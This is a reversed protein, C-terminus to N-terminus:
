GTPAWNVGPNAAQLLEAGLSPDDKRGEIRPDNEHELEWVCHRGYIPLPDRTEPLSMFFCWTVSGVMMIGEDEKLTWKLLTVPIRENTPPWLIERHDHIELTDPLEALENPHSLWRAAVGLAMERPDRVAEPIADPRELERLYDSADARTRWDECYSALQHIGEERGQKALAWAAEIRVSEDRHASALELLAASDSLFPLAATASVAYSAREPDEDQLYGRLLAIGQAHDFPHTSIKGEIRQQNAWDLFSVAAFGTPLHQSLRTILKPIDEDDPDISRFVSQWMFSENLRPDQAAKEVVPFSDAHGYAVLHRVMTVAELDGLDEENSALAAELRHKVLPMGLEHFVAYAEQSGPKRFSSGIQYAADPTPADRYAACLALADEMSAIKPDTDLEEVEDDHRSGGELLHSLLLKLNPSVKAKLCYQHFDAPVEPPAEEDMWATLKGKLLINTIVFLTWIVAYALTFKYFTSEWRGELRLLLITLLIGPWLLKKWPNGENM